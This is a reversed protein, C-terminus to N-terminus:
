EAPTEEAEVKVLRYVDTSTVVSEGSDEDEGYFEVNLFTENGERGASFSVDEAWDIAEALCQELDKYTSFEMAM